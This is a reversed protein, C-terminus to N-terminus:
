APENRRRLMFMGLAPWLLLNSAHVTVEWGWTGIGFVKGGIIAGVINPYCGCWPICLWCLSAWVGVAIGGALGYRLSGLGRFRALVYLLIFSFPVITMLLVAILVYGAGLWDHLGHAISETLM